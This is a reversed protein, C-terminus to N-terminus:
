TGRDYGRGSGTASGKPMADAGPMGPSPEVRVAAERRGEMGAEPQTRVVGLDDSSGPAEEASSYVYAANQRIPDVNIQPTPADDTGSYGRTFPEGKGEARGETRAAASPRNVGDFQQEGREENSAIERGLAGPIQGAKQEYQQGSM